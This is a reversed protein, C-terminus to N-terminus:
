DIFIKRQTKKFIVKELNELTVRFGLSNQLVILSKEKKSQSRLNPHEKVVSKSIHMEEKRIKM